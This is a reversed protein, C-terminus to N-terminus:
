NAVFLEGREIGMDPGSAVFAVTPPETSFVQFLQEETWVHFELLEGWRVGTLGTAVQAYSRLSSAPLQTVYGRHGEFVMEPDTADFDERQTFFGLVQEFRIEACRSEPTVAIRTYPGVQKGGLDTM